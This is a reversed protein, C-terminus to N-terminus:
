ILVWLLVHSDVAAKNMISYIIFEDSGAAAYEEPALHIFLSNHSTSM